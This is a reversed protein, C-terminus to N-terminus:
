CLSELDWETIIKGGWARNGVIKTLKKLLMRKGTKINIIFINPSDYEVDILKNYEGLVYDKSYSKNNCANLFNCRKDLKDQVIEAVNSDTNIVSLNNDDIDIYLIESDSIWGVIYINVDLKLRKTNGNKWIHFSQYDCNEGNEDTDSQSYVIKGNNVCYVYSVKENFLNFTMQSFDVLYTESSFSLGPKEYDNKNAMVVLLMDESYLHLSLITMDDPMELTADVLGNKIKVAYKKNDKHAICFYSNNTYDIVKEAREYGTPKLEKLYCSELDFSYSKSEDSELIVTGSINKFERPKIYNNIVISM